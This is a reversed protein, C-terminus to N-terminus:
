GNRKEKMPWYHKCKTGKRPSKAFWSQWQGNPTAQARYCTKFMPCRKDRCMTIDAM